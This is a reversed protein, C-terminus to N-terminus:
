QTYFQMLTQLDARKKNLKETLQQQLQVVEKQNQFVLNETQRNDLAVFLNASSVWLSNKQDAGCSGCTISASEGQDNGSTSSSTTSGNRSQAASTQNKKGQFAEPLNGYRLERILDTNAEHKAKVAWLDQELQQIDWQLKAMESAVKLRLQLEDNSDKITSEISTM